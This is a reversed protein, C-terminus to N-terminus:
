HPHSMIPTSEGSNISTEDRELAMQRTWAKDLFDVKTLGRVHTTMVYKPLYSPMFVLLTVVPSLSAVVWFYWQPIYFIWFYITFGTFWAQFLLVLQLLHALLLPRSFPFLKKDEEKRRSQFFALAEELQTDGSQGKRDLVRRQKSAVELVDPMAGEPIAFSVPRQKFRERPDQSPTDVISPASQTTHLEAPPQTLGESEARKDGSKAKKDKSKDKKEKDKKDDKKKSSSSSSPKEKEKEKKDKSKDKLSDKKSAQQQPALEDPKKRSWVKIRAGTTKLLPSKEDSGVV